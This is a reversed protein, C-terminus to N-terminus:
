RTFFALCSSLYSCRLLTTTCASECLSADGSFRCCGLWCVARLALARELGRARLPMINGNADQSPNVATFSCGLRQSVAITLQLTHPM